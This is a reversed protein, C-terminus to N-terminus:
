QGGNQASHERPLGYHPHGAPRQFQDPSGGVMPVFAIGFGPYPDAQPPPTWTYNLSPAPTELSRPIYGKGNCRSCSVAIFEGLKAGSLFQGLGECMTCAELDPAQKLEIPPQQPEFGLLEGSCRTCPQLQDASDGFARAMSTMYTKVAREIKDQDVPAAVAVPEPTPEPEPEPEPEPTTEEEEAAEAAEVEDAEARAREALSTV